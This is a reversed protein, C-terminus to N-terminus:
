NNKHYLHKPEHMWTVFQIWILKLMLNGYCHVAYLESYSSSTNKNM